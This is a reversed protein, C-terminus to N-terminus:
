HCLIGWIEDLQVEQVGRLKKGKLWIEIRWADPFTTDVVQGPKLRLIQYKM